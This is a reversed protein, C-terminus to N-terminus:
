KFIRENKRTILQMTSIFEKTKKLHDKLMNATIAVMRYNDTCIIFRDKRKFEVPSKKHLVIIERIEQILKAYAPDLNYRDACKNKFMELKGEFNDNFPPIQKFLREHHLIAGMAKSLSLFINDTVNLLIKTDGILPYTVGLMHDANKLYKISEERLEQFKEM